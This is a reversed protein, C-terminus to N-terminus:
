AEGCNYYSDDTDIFKEMQFTVMLIIIRVVATCCSSNECPLLSDDYTGHRAVFSSVRAWLFAHLMLENDGSVGGVFVFSHKCRVM